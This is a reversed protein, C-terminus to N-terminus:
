CGDDLAIEPWDAMLADFPERDIRFLFADNVATVPAARPEPDSLAVEGVMKRPGLILITRENSHM